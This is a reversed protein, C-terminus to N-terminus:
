VAVHLKLMNKQQIEVFVDFNPKLVFFNQPFLILIL